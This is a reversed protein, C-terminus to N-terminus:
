ATPRTYVRATNDDCGIALLAGDPSFAIDLVSVGVPYTIRDTETESVDSLDIMRVVADDTVVVLERGAPNFLLRTIARPLPLHHTPVPAGASLDTVQVVKDHGGSALLSGDPSVAVATVPQPHTVPELQEGSAPDIILVLNGGGAALWRGGFAISQVQGNHEFPPEREKGTAADLVTTFRDAGTAVWRGDSSVAVLRVQRQHPQTHTWRAQGTQGNLRRTTTDFSASVLDADDGDGPVFAVMSVRHDHRHARPWRPRASVTKILQVEGNMSGTAFYKGDPGFKIATLGSQPYDLLLDGSDAHFVKARDGTAAAVLRIGPGTVSVASVPADLGRRWLLSHGGTPYIRLFRVPGEVGAVALRTADPSFAIREVDASVLWVTNGAKADVLMAGDSSEAANVAVFRDGPSFEVRTGAAPRPPFRVSGDAVAYVVLRDGELRAGWQRDSSLAWPVDNDPFELGSEWAPMSLVEGHAADLVLPGKSTLAVVRRDDDSFALRYVERYYFTREWQPHPPPVDWDHHSLDLPAADFVSIRSRLATALLRSDSSFAPMLWDPDVRSVFRGDGTRSRYLFVSGAGGNIALIQGNPSFVLRAEKPDRTFNAPDVLRSGTSASQWAETRWNAHFMHVGAGTFDISKTDTVGNWAIPAVMFTVVLLDDTPSFAIGTTILRSDYHWLLDGTSADVVAFGGTQGNLTAAGVAIWTGDPNWAMPGGIFPLEATALVRDAASM